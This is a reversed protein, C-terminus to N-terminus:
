QLPSRVSTCGLLLSITGGGSVATCSAPCLQISAPTGLNDRVYFWGGTEAGCDAPGDVYYIARENGGTPKHHVNVKSFDLQRGDPRPLLFECTAARGRIQKIANLIEQGSTSDPAAFAQTTGGALAVQNLGQVNGIGIVYTLIQRAHAAGAAAVQSVADLDNSTCGQPAAATALVIITKRAPHDTAWQAAYQMAGQLAPRTPTGGGPTRRRLSDVIASGGMPLVEIPVDPRAYDNPNCSGPSTPDAPPSGPPHLGFYGLGLGVGSLEPSLVADTIAKQVFVWRNSGNELMSASQDVLLFMDLPTLQTALSIGSCFAPADFAGGDIPGTGLAGAVGSAGVTGSSGGTSSGAAGGTGGGECECAGYGSRDDLCKQVSLCQGAGFCRRTDGRNCIPEADNQGGGRADGGDCGGPTCSAPKDDTSGGCAGFFGFAPLLAATLAKVKMDMGASARRM